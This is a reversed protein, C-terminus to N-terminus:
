PVIPGHRGFLFTVSAIKVADQGGDFIHARVVGQVARAEGLGREGQGAGATVPFLRAAPAM